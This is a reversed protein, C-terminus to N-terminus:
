LKDELNYLQALIFCLLGDTLGFDIGLGTVAVMIGSGLLLYGSKLNM